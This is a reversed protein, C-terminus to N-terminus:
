ISCRIHVDYSVGVTRLTSLTWLSKKQLTPKRVQVPLISLTWIEYVPQSQLRSVTGVRQHARNFLKCLEYVVDADPHTGTLQM